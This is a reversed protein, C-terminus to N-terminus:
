RIWATDLAPRISKRIIKKGLKPDLRKLKKDIEDIGTLTFQSKKDTKFSSKKVKFGSNSKGAGHLRKMVGM